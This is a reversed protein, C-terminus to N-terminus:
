NNKEILNGIFAKTYKFRYKKIESIFIEMRELSTRNFKYDASMDTDTGDYYVFPNIQEIKPIIDKHSIVFRLSEYFDEKSEGPYGVILSVGFNLGVKNLKEFFDVADKTTFGKRMNKLIRDCGSELGVFLNYCGSRKMKEFIRIDTDKRIAIQGEWPIAGFNDMIKECLNELYNLDANILSDFFVFYNTANNSRHYRIEEIVSEVSRLRFGRYLLRESCFSCNRICGRSFQIPLTDKRPYNNFNIGRYYPFPLDKLTDLQIFTAVGERYSGEIFQYFPLEGEGVVLFDVLDFIEKTFKGKTKFFQRSIEAGGLVVILNKKKGKIEKIFNITAIFNSKFCSFGVIDYELIRERVSTYEKYFSEKIISTINKELFLNCSILWERKLDDDSLNYFINNIDILDTSIGKSELYSQLFGLGLPPMKPWFPFIIALVVKPLGM